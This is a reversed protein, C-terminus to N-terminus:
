VEDTMIEDHREWDPTIKVRVDFDNAIPKLVSIADSHESTSQTPDDGTTSALRIQLPNKDQLIEYRGRVGALEGWKVKEPEDPHTLAPPGNATDTSDKEIFALVNDTGQVVANFDNEFSYLDVANFDTEYLYVARLNTLDALAAAMGNNVSTGNLGLAQLEHNDLSSVGTNTVGTFDVRLEVLKSMESIDALAVDTIKTGSLHLHTLASLRSIAPAAIDSIGTGSLNLRQLNPLTTLMQLDDDTVTSRSLHLTELSAHNTIPHLIGDIDTRNLILTQLAPLRAVHTMIEETIELGTLSLGSLNQLRPLEEHWKDPLDAASLSLWKLQEINCVTTFEKRSVSAGALSLRTGDWEHPEGISRGPIMRLPRKTFEPVPRDDNGILYTVDDYRTQYTYELDQYGWGGNDVENRGTTYVLAGAKFPIYHVAEGTGYDLPIKDLYKGKLDELSAPYRQQDFHYQKLAICVQLMENEQRALELARIYNPTSELLLEDLFTWTLKSAFSSGIPPDNEELLKFIDGFPNDLAKIAERRQQDDAILLIDIHEDFHRNIREYIGPWDTFVIGFTSFIADEANRWGTNGVIKEAGFAGLREMNEALQLAALREFVDLAKLGSIPPASKVQRSIRALDDPTMAPHSLIECWNEAAMGAVAKGVYFEVTTGGQHMVHHGLRYMVNVDTIADSVRGEALAVRARIRLTRAYGRISSVLPLLASFLPPDLDPQGTYYFDAYHERNAITSLEDLTRQHRQLYRRLMPNQNNLVHLDDTWMDNMGFRIKTRLDTSVRIGLASELAKIQDPDPEIWEGSDAVEYLGAVVNEGSSVGDLQFANIEDLLRASKLNLSQMGPTKFEVTYHQPGRPYLVLGLFILFLASATLLSRKM